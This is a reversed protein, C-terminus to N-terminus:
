AGFFFRIPRALRAAWAQENHQAGADYFYDLDRGIKYGKQTLLCFMRQAEDKGDEGSDLYMKIEKKPGRYQDIREFVSENDYFFASSLCGAMGFVDPRRWAALLSILGGMSSGMVATFKPNTYVPFHKDIFPKLEDTLFRLYKEGKKSDSYEEMRAETNYPGVVIFPQVTGEELLANTTEDLRWDYGIYATKPDVLNQGDHMYMVPYRKRAAALIGRPMWVIVDRTNGLHASEFGHFIITDGTVPIKGRDTPTAAARDAATMSGEGEFRFSIDQVPAGSARLRKILEKKQKLEENRNLVEAKKNM